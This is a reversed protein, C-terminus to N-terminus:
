VYSAGHNKGGCSCECTPGKSAMCKAGCEHETRKGKIPAARFPARCTWCRVYLSYSMTAQYVEVGDRNAQYDHDMRATGLPGPCKCRILLTTM